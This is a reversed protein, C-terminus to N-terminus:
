CDGIGGPRDMNELIIGELLDSLSVLLSSSKFFHLIRIVVLCGALIVDERGRDLGPLRSREDNTMTKTRAFLDGLQRRELTLGNMTDPRVQTTEIGHIMAALTTVTGGTGVLIGENGSHPGEPFTAQLLCDVHKELAEIDSEHPPDAPLFAQALVMAGMPISKVTTDNKRRLIFETSGGGLDFIMSVRGPTNLAYMVGKGTLRAEEEGSIVEVKIGTRDYVLNLLQDKNIAERVVGTSVAFFTKVNFNGAVDAFDVLVNLARVIAEQKLTRHYEDLGEALRIYARRRLLPRFRGWPGAPGAVLLRATLSGIEISALNSM